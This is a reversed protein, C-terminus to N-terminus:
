NAPPTDLGCTCKQVPDGVRRAGVKACTLHHTAYNQYHKVDEKLRQNEEWYDENSKDCEEMQKELAELRDRVLCIDNVTFEVSDPDEADFWSIVQDLIEIHKKM